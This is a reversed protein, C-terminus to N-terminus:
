YAQSRKLKTIVGVVKGITSHAHSCLYQSLM